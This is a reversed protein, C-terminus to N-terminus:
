ADEKSECLGQLKQLTGIREKQLEMKSLPLDAHTSEKFDKRKYTIMFNIHSISEGEMM